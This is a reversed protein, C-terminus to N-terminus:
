QARGSTTASLTTESLLHLLRVSLRLADAVDEALVLEDPHHSLANPSRVFLMAAPMRSAMIMADHGAGSVLEPHPLGEAEAARHLLARFTESM